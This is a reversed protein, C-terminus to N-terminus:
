FQGIGAMDRLGLFLGTMVNCHWDWDQNRSCSFFYIVEGTDLVGIISDEGFRSESLIGSGSAPSPNVRM